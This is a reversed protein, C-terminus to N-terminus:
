ERAPPRCVACPTYGMTQAQQLSIPIKSKSLHRCGERHYKTGTRTRYVTVRADSSEAHAPSTERSMASRGADRWLGRQAKRASAEYQRFLKMYEFPFKTYTRGYGQRIIELNVFLGEPARYLYLLERGYKDQFTHDREIYVEEGQLLDALFRSAEQGTAQAVEDAAASEPADVGILRVTVEKGEMLVVVTDGDVIRVVEYTPKGRFDQQLWAGQDSAPAGRTVLCLALGIQWVAFAACGRGRYPKM